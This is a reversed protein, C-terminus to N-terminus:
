EPLKMQVGYDKDDINIREVVPLVIKAEAGGNLRNSFTVEGGLTEVMSEVVTLGVGSGSTNGEDAKTKYRKIGNVLMDMPFGSGNDCVSIVVDNIGADVNVAIVENRPSFKIANSLLNDIIREIMYTDTDMHREAINSTFEIVLGKHQALPQIREVVAKLTLVIDIKAWAPTNNHNFFKNYDNINHLINFIHGANRNLMELKLTFDADSTTLDQLLIRIVNFPTKIDHVSNEIHHVYSVLRELDKLIQNVM